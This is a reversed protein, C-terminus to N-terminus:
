DSRPRDLWGDIQTVGEVIAERRATATRRAAQAQDLSLATTSPDASLPQAQRRSQLELQTLRANLAQQRAEIARQDSQIRLHANALRHQEGITLGSHVGAVQATAPSAVLTTIALLLATRMTSLHHGKM